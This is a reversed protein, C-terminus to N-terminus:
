RIVNKQNIEDWCEPILTTPYDPYPKLSECSITGNGDAVIKWQGNEKIAFFYGGGGKATAGGSAYKGDNTSVTVTIGDTEKWGNKDFLANKILENDEKSPCGEEFLRLCKNKSECWSYGASGICGHKDKDNGVFQGTPSAESTPSIIEQTPPIIKKSELLNKQGAQYAFFGVGGIILVTLVGFIFNKM